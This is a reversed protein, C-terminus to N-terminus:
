LSQLRELINKDRKWIAAAQKVKPTYSDVKELAERKLNISARAYIGTTNIDVHGLFDRVIVLPTNAELMHMAKTRRLTHPSVPYNFMPWVAKTKNVYKTLIYQVGFRSIRKGYRNTFLPNGNNQSSFLNCEKMYETLIKVTGSMLPVIRQKRGKGTLRIHAPKEFRIDGSNIDILEQVRAGSDYLLSLMALDRRGSSKSQNPQSLLIKLDEPSLYNRETRETRYKPIALIRQCQM